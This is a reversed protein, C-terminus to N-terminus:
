LGRALAEIRGLAALAEDIEKRLLELSRRLQKNDVSVDGYVSAIANKATQVRSAHERLIQVDDESM